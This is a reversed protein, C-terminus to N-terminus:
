PAACSGMSSVIQDVPQYGPVKTGCIEMTPFGNVGKCQENQGKGCEIYEVEINNAELKEKEAEFEAVAKKTYGCWDAGYVKLKKAESM